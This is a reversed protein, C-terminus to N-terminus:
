PRLPKVTDFRQPNRGLTDHWSWKDYGKEKMRAMEDDVMIGNATDIVVVDFDNGKDIRHIINKIEHQDSVKAYNKGEIYQSKWGKWSLGKRDADIYFTREPDLTRMATTKGHGSQGMVAVARSM